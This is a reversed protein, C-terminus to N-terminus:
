LKLQNRKKLYSNFLEESEYPNWNSIMSDVMNLFFKKSMIKGGICVFSEIHWFYANENFDLENETTFPNEEEGKYFACLNLLKEPIKRENMIM